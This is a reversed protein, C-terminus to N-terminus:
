RAGPLPRVSVLELGSLMLTDLVGLLAPRDPVTGRLVTEAPLMSVRLGLREAEDTAVSGRVHIEVRELM